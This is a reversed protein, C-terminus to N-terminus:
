FECHTGGLTRRYSTDKNQSHIEYNLHFTKMATPLALYQPYIKEYFTCQIVSCPLSAYFLMDTYLSVGINNFLTNVWHNLNQTRKNTIDIYWELSLHHTSLARSKRKTHLLINDPTERIIKRNCNILVPLRLNKNLYNFRILLSCQLFLVDNISIAKILSEQPNLNHKPFCICGVPNSLM